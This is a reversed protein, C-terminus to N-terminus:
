YSLAQSYVGILQPIAIMLGILPLIFCVGSIILTWLFFKRTKEVSQYIQELKKDQAEIRKLIEEDM